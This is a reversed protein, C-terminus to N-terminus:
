NKVILANQVTAVGEVSKAISEARAKQQPTNVFGSLQVTNKYTTVTIPLGHVGDDALLKTKVKTTIISSDVYQGTSESRQSATCGTLLAVSVFGLAIFMMSKKLM